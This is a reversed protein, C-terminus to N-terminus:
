FKIVARGAVAGSKINKILKNINNLTDTKTVIKELNINRKTLLRMYRPIDSDPLAEGGHTGSICKGFHLPLTRIKGKKFNPVGVFILEGNKSILEYGKEM